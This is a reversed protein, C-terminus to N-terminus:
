LQLNIQNPNTCNCEIAPDDGAEAATRPEVVQLEASVIPMYMAGGTMAEAAVGGVVMVVGGVVAM